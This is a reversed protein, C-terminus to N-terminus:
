DPELGDSESIDQQQSELFQDIDSIAAELESLSIPEVPATDAVEESQLEPPPTAEESLERDGQFSDLLQKQYSKLFEEAAHRRMNDRQQKDTM